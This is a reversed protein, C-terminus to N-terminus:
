RTPTESRASGSFMAPLIREASGTQDTPLPIDVLDAEAIYRLPGQFNSELPWCTVLALRSGDSYRDLGSSDWRAIRFGRIEYIFTRGSNAVVNIRDGEKLDAMFAFHTDRHAAFVSMGGEGPHASHTIHAPGFALAQGSAGALAIVSQGLRPVEIRAVPWTDMWPWPKVNAQTEVTEAWANDLLIQALVAKAKIYLGSGIQHAAIGLALAIFSGIVWDWGSRTHLWNALGAPSVLQRASWPKRQRSQM